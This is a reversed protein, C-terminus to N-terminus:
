KCKDFRNQMKACNKKREERENSNGRRIHQRRAARKREIKMPKSKAYAASRCDVALMHFAISQLACYKNIEVPFKEGSFYKNFFEEKRREILQNCKRSTAYKHHYRRSYIVVSYVSYFSALSPSLPPIFACHNMFQSTLEVFPRAIFLVGNCLASRVFFNWKM